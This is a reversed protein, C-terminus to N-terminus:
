KRFMGSFVTDFCDNADPKRTVSRPALREERVVQPPTVGGLADLFRAKSALMNASKQVVNAAGQAMATLAEAKNFKDNVVEHFQTLVDAFQDILTEKVDVPLLYWVGAKRLAPFTAECVQTLSLVADGAFGSNALKTRAEAEDRAIVIGAGHNTQYQFAFM